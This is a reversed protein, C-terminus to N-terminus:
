RIAVAQHRSIVASSASRKPSACARAMSCRWSPQTAHSFGPSVNRAPACIPIPFASPRRCRWRSRCARRIKPARVANLAGVKGKGNRELFRAFSRAGALQRMLTRGGIGKARRSAMFARVDQPTLEAFDALSPQGGLHDSMFLLFQTVDRRYAEVTKPSMRKEDGLFASWRLFEASMDASFPLADAHEPM